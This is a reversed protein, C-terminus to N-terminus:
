NQGLEMILWNLVSRAGVMRNGAGIIVGDVNALMAGYMTYVLPLEVKKLFNIFFM